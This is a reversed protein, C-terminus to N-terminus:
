SAALHNGISLLTDSAVDCRRALGGTRGVVEDAQVAFREASRSRWQMQEEAGLISSRAARMEAAAQYMHDRAQWAVRALDFGNTTM